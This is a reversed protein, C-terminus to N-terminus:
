VPQLARDHRGQGTRSVPRACGQDPIAKAAMREALRESSTITQPRQDIFDRLMAMLADFRERRPQVGMLYDAITIESILEGDRYFRWDLCNTYILNPFGESYRKFQDKAYGKFAKLDSGIDKAECHGIPIDGRLFVFDPAGVDVRAPENVARVEESLTNFLKHLAPRYAHEGAIGTKYITAVEQLFIDIM